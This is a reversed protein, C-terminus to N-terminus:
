MYNFLSLGSVQVFAKQAATLALQQRSFDSLAQNYDLDQLSSLTAQYQLARDQNASTISDLERLSAGGSAQVALVNGLAQDIDQLGQNVGNTVAAHGGGTSAPASLSAILNQITTFISQQKSPQLTFSDGDAPAGSISTQMGGVTIAAGDTYANGASLTAATTTDVVDYTTVGGVVHFNLSYSDGNVAAPTAVQSAGITGSGTNSAPASAAFTGNGNKVQDFIASGGYTVALTRSTSVQLEQQGQDGQYDIGGAANQVFPQTSTQFGSYLYHGSGDKSNALAILQQLQSSIDGAITARDSDTLTGSGANVASTRISQLVNSVQSLVSDNLALAGKATSVNALYQTNADNAQTVTLAQSAAVPDDSPTLVRKDASIQAQTHLMQAQQKGMAEVSVSYILSTSVRM